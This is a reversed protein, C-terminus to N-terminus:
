KVVKIDSPMANCQKYTQLFHNAFGICSNGLRSQLPDAYDPEHYLCGLNRWLILLIYLHSNSVM